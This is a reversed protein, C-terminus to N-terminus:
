LVHARDPPISYTASAHAYVQHPDAGGIEVSAVALRKGLKLIKARGVLLGPQPKMLFDISLHTTVTLGSPGIHALIVVWAAIDALTMLAPGSVTGGPRLMEPGAHLEVAAHRPSVETVVFARRGANLEPFDRDLFRNLEDPKMVPTFMSM